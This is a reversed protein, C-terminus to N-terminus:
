ITCRVLIRPWVRTIFPTLFNPMQHRTFRRVAGNEVIVGTNKTRQGTRCSNTRYYYHNSNVVTLGMLGKWIPLVFSLRPCCSAFTVKTQLSSMQAFQDHMTVLLCLVASCKWTGGISHQSPSAVEPIGIKWFLTNKECEDTLWMDQDPLKRHFFKSSTPQLATIWDYYIIVKDNVMLGCRDRLSWQKQTWWAMHHIRESM